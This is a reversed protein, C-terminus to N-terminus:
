TVSFRVFTTYSHVSWVLWSSADAYYASSLWESTSVYNCQQRRM